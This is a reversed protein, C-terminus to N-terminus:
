FHTKDSLSTRVKRTILDMHQAQLIRPFDRYDSAYEFQTAQSFLNDIDENENYNKPRAGLFELSERMTLIHRNRFWRRFAVKNPEKDYIGDTGNCLNEIASIYDNRNEKEFLMISGDKDEPLFGLNEM